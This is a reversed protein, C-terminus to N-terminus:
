AAALQALRKAEDKSARKRKEDEEFRIQCQRHYEMNAELVLGVIRMNPCADNYIRKIYGELEDLNKWAPHRCMVAFWVLLVTPARSISTFDHLFVQQDNEYVLTELKLAANFADKVYIMEEVDSVPSLVYHMGLKRFM